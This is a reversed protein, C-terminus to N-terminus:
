RLTGRQGMTAELYINFKQINASKGFIKGNNTDLKIRNLSYIDYLEIYKFM